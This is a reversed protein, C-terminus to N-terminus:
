QKHPLSRIIAFILLLIGIVFIVFATGAYSFSNLVSVGLLSPLIPYVFVSCVIVAFALILEGAATPNGEVHTVTKDATDENINEWLDSYADSGSKTM